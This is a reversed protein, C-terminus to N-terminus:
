CWWEATAPTVSAATVKMASCTSAGSCWAILWFRPLRIAAHNNSRSVSAQTVGAPM